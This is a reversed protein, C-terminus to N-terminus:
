NDHSMSAEHENTFDPKQYAAPTSRDSQDANSTHHATTILSLRTMIHSPPVSIELHLM